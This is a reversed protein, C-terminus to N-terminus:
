FADEQVMKTLNFWKVYYKTYLYLSCKQSKLSLQTNKFYDSSSITGECYRLVFLQRHLSHPLVCQQEHMSSAFRFFILNAM